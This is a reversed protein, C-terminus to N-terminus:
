LAQSAWWWILPLGLLFFWGAASILIPPTPEDISQRNLRYGKAQGLPEAYWILVLPVLLLGAVAATLKSPGHASLSYGLWGLAIVLAALRAPTPCPRLTSM